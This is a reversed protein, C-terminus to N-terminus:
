KIVTRGTSAESNYESYTYYNELADQTLRNIMLFYGIFPQYKKMDLKEKQYHELIATTM